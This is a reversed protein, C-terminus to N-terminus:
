SELNACPRSLLSAWPTDLRFLVRNPRDRETQGIGYRGTEWTRRGRVGRLWSGVDNEVGAHVGLDQHNRAKFGM